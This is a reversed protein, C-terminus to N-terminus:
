QVHRKISRAAVIAGSPVNIHTGSDTLTKSAAPKLVYTVPASPESACSRSTRAPKCGSQDATPDTIDIDIDTTFSGVVPVIVSRWSLAEALVSIM